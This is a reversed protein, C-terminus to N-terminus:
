IEVIGTQVTVAQTQQVEGPLVVIAVISIVLQHIIIRAGLVLGVLGIMSTRVAVLATTIATILALEPMVMVPITTIIVPVNESVLTM